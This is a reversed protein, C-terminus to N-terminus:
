AATGPLVGPWPDTTDWTMSASLKTGEPAYYLTVGGFINVLARGNIANGKVSMGPTERYPRFGVVLSILDIDQDTGNATATADVIDLWVTNGRRKLYVGGTAGFTAESCQATINRWGTDPATFAHKAIQADRLQLVTVRGATREAALWDLFSTLDATTIRGSGDIHEPHLRIITAARAAVAATVKAKADTITAGGNDIWTGKAGPDPQGDIPYLLTDSPMVGALIAHAAYSVQGRSTGAVESYKGGWTDGTIGAQVYTDIPKGIITELEERGGRIETELDAPFTHTRGHNAIEVLPGGAWASLDATAAGSNTADTLLQSNVALTVPLNRATLLPHVISKYKTLGHDFALVVVAPTTVEVNGRRARLATLRYDHEISGAGGGSGSMGALIPDLVSRPYYRNDAVSAPMYNSWPSFGNSGMSRVYMGTGVWHNLIFVQTVRPISPILPFNILTGSMGPVPYHCATTANANSPQYFSGTATITDLDETNLQKGFVAGPLAGFKALLGDYVNTAVARANQAIDDDGTNLYDDGVPQVMGLEEPTTM